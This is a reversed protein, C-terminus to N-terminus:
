SWKLAFLTADDKNKFLWSSKGFATAVAWRDTKNSSAIYGGEGFQKHCWNIMELVQHYRDKEFHVQYPHTDDVSM